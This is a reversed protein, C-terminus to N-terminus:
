NSCEEADDNVMPSDSDSEDSQNMTPQCIAHPQIGKSGKGGAMPKPTPVLTLQSGKGGARTGTPHSSMSSSGHGWTDDGDWGWNSWDDQSWSQWASWERRTSWGWPQWSHQSSSM